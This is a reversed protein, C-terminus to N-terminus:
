IQIHRQWNNYCSQFNQLFFGIEILSFAHNKHIEVQKVSAKMMEVSGNVQLCNWNPRSKLLPRLHDALGVKQESGFWKSTKSIIKDLYFEYVQMCFYWWDKRGVQDWRNCACGDIAELIAQALDSKKMFSSGPDDIVHDLYPNGHHTIPAGSAGIELYTLGVQQLWVADAAWLLTTRPPDDRYLCIRMQFGWNRQKNKWIMWILVVELWSWSVKQISRLVDVYTCCGSYEKWLFGLCAWYLTKM